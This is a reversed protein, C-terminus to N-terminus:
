FFYTCVPYGYRKKKFHLLFLDILNQMYNQGWLVCMGVCVCVFACMGVCSIKSM